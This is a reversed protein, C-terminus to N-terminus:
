KQTKVMSDIFGRKDGLTKLKLLCQPNYAKDDLIFNIIVKMQRRMDGAREPTRADASHSQALTEFNYLLFEFKSVSSSSM